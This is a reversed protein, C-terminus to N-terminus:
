SDVVLTGEDGRRWRKRGRPWYINVETAACDLRKRVALFRVVDDNDLAVAHDDDKEYITLQRISPCVPLGHEGAVMLASLISPAHLAVMSLRQIRKFRYLITSWSAVTGPFLTICLEEISGFRHSRNALAEVSQRAFSKVSASRDLIRLSAQSSRSRFFGVGFGIKRDQQLVLVTSGGLFKLTSMDEPISCLIHCDRSAIHMRNKMRRHDMVIKVNAMTPIVTHSLITASDCDRLTLKRLNPVHVLCSPSSDDIMSLFASIDMQEIGPSRSMVDILTSVMVTPHSPPLVLRLDKLNSFLGLPWSPFGALTLSRLAPLNGGFLSELEAPQEAIFINLEELKSAPSSLHRLTTSSTSVLHFSRIRHFNRSIKSFIAERSSDLDDVCVVSVDLMAHKSRKLVARTLEQCDPRSTHVPLMTWLTGDGVAVSRWKQCVLSLQVLARIRTRHHALLEITDPRLPPQGLALRFITSLVEPPIVHISTM